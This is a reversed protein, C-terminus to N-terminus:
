GISNKRFDDNTEMNGFGNENQTKVLREADNSATLIGQREKSEKRQKVSM